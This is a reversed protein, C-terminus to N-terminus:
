FVVRVGVGTRRGRLPVIALEPQKANFKKASKPAAIVDVVASVWIATSGIVATGLGCFFDQSDECGNGVAILTAGFIAGRIGVGILGRKSNGAYFHGVAPGIMIPALIAVTSLGDDSSYGSGSSSTAAMIMYPVTTAGISLLLATTPSKHPPSQTQAHIDPAAAWTIALVALVTTRLPTTRTQM